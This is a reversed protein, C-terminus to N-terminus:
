IGDRYKANYWKTHRDQKKEGDTVWGPILHKHHTCDAASMEVVPDLMKECGDHLIVPGWKSYM